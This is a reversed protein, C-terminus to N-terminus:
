FGPSMSARLVPSFFVVELFLVGFKSPCIVAGRYMQEEHHHTCLECKRSYGRVHYEMQENNNVIRSNNNSNAELSRAM